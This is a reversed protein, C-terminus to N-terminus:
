RAPSWGRGLRRPLSTECEERKSWKIRLCKSRSLICNMSQSITPTNKETTTPAPNTNERLLASLELDYKRPASFLHHISAAEPAEVLKETLPVTHFRAIRITSPIFDNQTVNTHHIGLATNRIAYEPMQIRRQPPIVEASSLLIRKPTPVPAFHARVLKANMIVKNETAENHM